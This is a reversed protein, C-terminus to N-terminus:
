KQRLIRQLNECGVENGLDCAKRYDSIAMGKNGLMEYALGRCNYAFDFNPDLAVAKNYDEIARDYQGKKCYASGRMRYGNVYNPDLSILNNFGEIAKDCQGNRYFETTKGLLKVWQDAQEDTLGDPTLIYVKDGVQFEKAQEDASEVMEDDLLALDSLGRSVINSSTKQLSSTKAKALQNNKEIDTM